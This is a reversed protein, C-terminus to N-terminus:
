RDARMLLAETYTIDVKDGVKLGQLESKDRVRFDWKRGEPGEATVWPATLDIERITVTVSHQQTITAATAGPQRVIEETKKAPDPLGPKRVSVAIAQSYTATVTDGVKLDNFRQVREDAVVQFDNGKPGRLTVIRKAKDIAVITAKATVTESSSAQRSTQQVVAAAVVPPLPAMAGAQVLIAVGLWKLQTM